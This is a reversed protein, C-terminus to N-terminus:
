EKAKKLKKVPLSSVYHESKQLLEDFLNDDSYITKPLVVYGKMSRGPMPEFSTVDKCNKTLGAIDPDSLRLFLKDGHVGVFMNGNLFYAPYGFMKKYDCNKSKMKGTIFEVLEVPAKKWEMFDNPM